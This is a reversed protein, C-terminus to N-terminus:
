ACFRRLALNHGQRVRRNAGPVIAFHRLMKPGIGGGPRPVDAETGRARALPHTNAVVMGLIGQAVAHLLRRQWKDSTLLESM